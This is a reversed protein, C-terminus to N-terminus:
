PTPRADAYVEDRLLDEDERMRAPNGDEGDEPKPEWWKFGRPPKVDAKQESAARQEAIKALCLPCPIARCGQEYLAVVREKSLPQPVLCWDRRWLRARHGQVRAGCIARKSDEWRYHIIVPM